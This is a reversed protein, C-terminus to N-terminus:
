KKNLVFKRLASNIQESTGKPEAFFYNEMWDPSLWSRTILFDMTDLDFIQKILAGKLPIYTGKSMFHASKLTFGSEDVSILKAELTVNTKIPTKLKTYLHVLKEMSLLRNIRSIVTDVDLPKVLLGHLGNELVHAMLEPESSENYGLIVSPADGPCTLIKEVLELNAMRQSVELNVFFVQPRLAQYEKIAVEPDYHCFMKAFQGSLMSSFKLGEDQNQDFIFCTLQRTKMLKEHDM